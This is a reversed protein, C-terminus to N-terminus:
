KKQGKTKRAISDFGLTELANYIDNPRLAIAKTDNSGQRKQVACDVVYHIFLTTSARVANRLEPTSKGYEKAINAFTKEALLLEKEVPSEFNM